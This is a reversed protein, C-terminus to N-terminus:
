QLGSFKRKKKFVYDFGVRVAFKSQGPIDGGYNVRFLALLSGQINRSISYRKGLGFYSALVKQKPFEQFSLQNHGVQLSEFDAHMFIGRVLLYDAYLRYGYINEAAIFSPNAKGVGVRYVGAAGMTLWGTLRYGVQPSLDFLVEDSGTYTQFTVGPVIRKKFPKGAMTNIRKKRKVSDPPLLKSNEYVKKTKSIDSQANKIAPSFKTLQDNVVNASKRKLEEQIFKKDQYRQLMAAHKAEMERLKQTQADLEKVEHLQRAKNELEETNIDEIRTEKLEALQEQYKGAEEKLGSAEEIKDTIDQLKESGPVKEIISFDFKGTSDTLTPLTTKVEPIDVGQLKSAEPVRIDPIEGGVSPLDVAPSPLRLDPTQNGIEVNPFAKGDLPNPSNNLEPLKADPLKIGPIEVKSNPVIGNLDKGPIHDTSASPLKVNKDVGSLKKELTSQTSKLKDTLKQNLSDTTRQLKTQFSGVKQKTNESVARLSDTTRNRLSDIRGHIRSTLKSASLKPLSDTKLTDLPNSIRISDLPLQLRISDPIKKSNSNLKEELRAKLGIVKSRVSTSDQQAWLGHSLLMVFLFLVIRM